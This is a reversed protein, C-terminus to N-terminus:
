TGDGFTFVDDEEPKTEEATREKGDNDDDDGPEGDGLAVPSDEALGLDDREDDTNDEELPDVHFDDSGQTRRDTTETPTQEGETDIDATVPASDAVDVTVPEPDHDGELSDDVVGADTDFRDLADTLQAAQDALTGASEAVETLASTQEEAAAVVDESAASTRESIIAAEDVMSVVQQTSAAQQESTGSIEQVGTNTEEAYRAIEDLADVAREVSQRHESVHESTMQVESATRETQNQIRELRWEIDEATDKTEAALEKVEGAVASFGEGSEASRAAEINANLALMNTQDAVEAIFELLADIQEMEEELREIEEVAAEAETEIENMGEIAANAAKRGRKGAQETRESIEAVENSSAAIEETRTSLDNMEHNVSQFKENQEDAGDAISQVSETVQGSASKVERSSATVHQSTNAVDNAFSKLLETTREIEGIMSNFEEAIEAMAENDTDPNMRATFDGRACARMVDRYEDAKTELDLNVEEAEKRAREAEERANQAEQIQERLSDRMNAFDAYLQGVSDIRATEFDVDLDGEEMREAKGRLRNVSRSTSQGIIVGVFLVLVGGALSVYAQDIGEGIFDTGAYWVAGVVLGPVLLALVVKLAYRRRIFKPVVLRLPGLM